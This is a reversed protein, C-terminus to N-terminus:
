AEGELDYERVRCVRCEGIFGPRLDLDSASRLHIKADMDPADRWTRGVALRSNKKAEDVIFRIDGGVLSRNKRMHLKKQLRMVRDLREQAIVAPVQADMAAAATGEEPYYRFAGLRDFRIKELYELLAAFDEENEGPFGVMVTTRLCFDPNRARLRTFIGDFCAFSGARNMRSLVPASAHQIPLDLYPLLKGGGCLFEEMEPGLGEACAYLLRIWEIGEVADLGRILETLRKKGYLQRGYASTDQAILILEKVGRAALNWTEAILDEIPTDKQPGRILPIACFACGRDCGESIKLYSYHAPTASIPRPGPAAASPTLQRSKRKLAEILGDELGLPFFGDIEPCAEAFFDRARSVGCGMAFIFGIRGTKKLGSLWRLSDLSEELAPKIFGCTNVVVAQAGEPNEFLRLGAARLSGMLRETDVLNKPCGMSVFAVTAPIWGAADSGAQRGPSIRGPGRGVGRGPIKRM